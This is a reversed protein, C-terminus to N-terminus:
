VGGPNKKKRSQDERKGKKKKKRHRRNNMGEGRDAQEIRKEEVVDASM